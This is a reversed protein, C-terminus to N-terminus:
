HMELTLKLAREIDAMEQHTVVSMKKGLREKDIAYYMINLVYVCLLIEVGLCRLQM